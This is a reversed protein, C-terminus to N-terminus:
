DAEHRRAAEKLIRQEAEHWVRYRAVLFTVWETEAPALERNRLARLRNLDVPEPPEENSLLSAPDPIQNEDLFSCFEPDVPGEPLQMNTMKVRNFLCLLNRTYGMDKRKLPELFCSRITLCEFNLAM